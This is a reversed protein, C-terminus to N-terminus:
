TVSVTFPVDAQHVAAYAPMVAPMHVPGDLTLPAHDFGIVEVVDFSTDFGSEEFRQRDVLVMCGMAVFAAGAWAFAMLPAAGGELVLLVAAGAMALQIAHKVCMWVRSEPQMSPRTTSTM